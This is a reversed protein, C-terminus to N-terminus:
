VGSPARYGMRGVSISCHGFGIELTVDLTVDMTVNAGHPLMFPPSAKESFRVKEETNALNKVNLRLFLQNSSVKEITVDMTVDLPVNLTVKSTRDSLPSMTIAPGLDM